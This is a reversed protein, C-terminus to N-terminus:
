VVRSVIEHNLEVLKKVFSLNSTIIECRGPDSIVVVGPHHGKLHSFRSSPETKVENHIRISLYIGISLVFISLFKFDLVIALISSFVIFIYLVIGVFLKTSTVECAFLTISGLLLFVAVTPNFGLGILLVSLVFLVGSLFLLFYNSTVVAHSQCAVCVPILIPQVVKRHDAIPTVPSFGGTVNRNCCICSSPFEIMRFDGVKGHYSKPFSFQVCYKFGSKKTPISIETVGTM